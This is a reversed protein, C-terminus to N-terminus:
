HESALLEAPSEQSARLSTLVMQTLPQIWSEVLGTHTHDVRERPTTSIADNSVEILAM